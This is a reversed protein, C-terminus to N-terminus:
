CEGCDNCLFSHMIFNCKSTTFAVPATLDSRRGDSAITRLQISYPTGSTLDGISISGGIEQAARTLRQVETNSDTEKVVIEVQDRLEAPSSPISYTVAVTSPTIDAVRVDTPEPM